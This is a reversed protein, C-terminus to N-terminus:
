TLNETFIMVTKLLFETTKTWCTQFQLNVFTIKSATFHGVETMNYWTLTQEWIFLVQVLDPGSRSRPSDCLQSCKHTQAWVIPPKDPITRYFNCGNMSQGLFTSDEIPRTFTLLRKPWQLMGERIRGNYSVWSQVTTHDMRCKLCKKDPAGNLIRVSWLGNNFRFFAATLLSGVPLLARQISSISTYSKVMRYLSPFSWLLASEKDRSGLEGTVSVFATSHIIELWVVALLTEKEESTGSTQPTRGSM